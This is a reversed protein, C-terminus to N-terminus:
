PRNAPDRLQDQTGYEVVFWEILKRAISIKGPIEEPFAEPSYWGADEIESPNPNLEGRSWEATFAVMLSAPFAWPQSAFYRINRVEVGVEEFVERAVCQELNEGPEVFGALVSYTKGPRNKGHAMLLRGDRVIAMIVAPSIAPYSHHSCARCIKAGEGTNFEMPAGCRGCYRTIADWYAYHFAVNSEHFLDHPLVTALDRRGIREFGVPIIGAFESDDSDLLASYVRDESETSAMETGDPLRFLKARLSDPIEPSDFPIPSFDELLLVDRNDPFLWVRSNM